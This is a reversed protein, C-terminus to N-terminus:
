EEVNGRTLVLMDVFIANEKTSGPVYAPGTFKASFWADWTNADPDDTRFDFLHGTNVYIAEGHGYFASPNDKLELKGPFRYWHYKEDRPVEKILLRVGGPLKMNRWTFQTTKGDRGPLRKDAGHYDPDPEASKLAKGAISDPDSVISSCHTPHVRFYPWAVMRFDEAPVDKFKEPRPVGPDVQAQAKEFGSQEYPKECPFRRVYEDVLARWEPILDEVDIGQERFAKRYSDRRVLTYWLFPIREANIRKRYINGEPFSEALKKLGIYNRVMFEPTLYTWHTTVQSTQRTTQRAVGVRIEDFLEHMPAAAPGFYYRFYVDALKEPDKDPDMMLQSAAFYCLDIFSQPSHPNRAAELFLDTVHLSRFYRLDSALADFVTDPHPERSINWYDWVMNRYSIRSWESFYVLRDANLPHSLPHYPDSISYKDCLQILVNSEPRVTKPPTGTNYGYCFTRILIEPYEKRIERAVSNIYRLLLGSNSGEEETIAKCEPCKCIYVMGDLESIDYITPWKEKPLTERDKRIMKRLSDLTIEAVKPNSMCVSGGYDVRRPAFRKGAENMSFYEPHEQFLEPNVYLSLSHFSPFHSIYHASYVWLRDLENHRGNQGNRLKWKAFAQIVEPSAKTHRFIPPYRNYIFRGDFAPKGQQDPIDRKLTACDPVADQDWTLCYCGFQNLLNWVAYFSGIPNGGSLILKNGETRIIWEEASLQGFPINQAAAFKTQGVYIASQGEPIESEPLVAFEAGTMKGLYTRLDDAADQDFGVPNEPLAILCQAKGNEAFSFEAGYLGITGILVALGCLLKMSSGRRGALEHKKFTM